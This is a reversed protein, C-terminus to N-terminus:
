ELICAQPQQLFASPAYSGFNSFKTERSGLGVQLPIDPDFEYPVVKDTWPCFKKTEQDIYYHFVTGASPFKVTKFENIWWKNFENRWDVLQDQFM